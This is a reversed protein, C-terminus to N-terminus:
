ASGLLFPLGVERLRALGEPDFAYLRAPRNPSGREMEDLPTLADLMKLKRRFNRKDIASRLVAEFVGQVQSLTFKEPLLEFGVTTYQLKGRLRELAYGLIEDHDFALDPLREVSFWQADAADSGARITLEDAPVLAYYAVTVVRGRPDRGPAGFTFLQELYVSEAGTEEELERHAAGELTEQELVFGGPLAWAGAFPEVGRRVLLVRLSGERVAFIVVDVTLQIDAREEM